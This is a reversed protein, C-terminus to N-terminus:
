IASSKNALNYMHSCITSILMIIIKHMFYAVVSDMGSLKAVWSTKVVILTLVYTDSTTSNSLHPLRINSFGLGNSAYVHM